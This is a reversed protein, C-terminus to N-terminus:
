DCGAAHGLMNLIIEVTGDIGFRSTSVALDYSDCLGWKQASYTDHYRARDRDKSKIMKGAQHDDVAAVTMIRRIRDEPRAHIFVSFMGAENKLIESAVRGVIVCSGAAALKRITEAQMNFLRDNILYFMAETDKYPNRLGMPFGLDTWGPLKEDAGALTAAAVGHEEATQYILKKDYFPINLRQALKEGAVRGGSGYQRSICIIVRKNEM